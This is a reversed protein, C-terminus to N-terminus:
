CQEQARKLIHKEKTQNIRCTNVIFFNPVFFSVLM